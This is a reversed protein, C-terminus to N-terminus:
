KRIEMSVSHGRLLWAHALHTRPIIRKPWNHDLQCAATSHWALIDFLVQRIHFIGDEHTTPYLPFGWMFFWVYLWSKSSVIASMTTELFWAVVEIFCYGANNNGIVLGGTLSATARMTIEL